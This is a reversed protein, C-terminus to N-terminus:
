PIEPEVGDDKDDAEEEVDDEDDDEEAFNISIYEHNGTKDTYSSRETGVAFGEGYDDGVILDEPLKALEARLEKNTLYKM